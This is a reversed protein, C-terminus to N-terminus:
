TKQEGSILKLIEDFDEPKAEKNRVWFAVLFQLRQIAKKYFDGEIDEYKDLSKLKEEYTQGEFMPKIEGKEEISSLTLTWWVLAKSEAWSEATNDFLRQQFMEFNRLEEQIEVMEKLVTEKKEKNDPEIGLKEYDERLSILKAVLEARYKKEKESFMGGDNSYQKELVARLLLGRRTGEAMKAGYFLEVEEYQERIPKVIHFKHEVDKKVKVTTKVENGKDDLSTTTEDVMEPKPLSFTYLIRKTNM